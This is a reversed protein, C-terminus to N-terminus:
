RTIEEPFDSGHVQKHVRDVAEALFADLSM